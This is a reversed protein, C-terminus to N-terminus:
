RQDQGGGKETGSGCWASRREAEGFRPHCGMDAGTGANAIRCLDNRFPYCNSFSGETPGDVILFSNGVVPVFEDILSVSLTGDLSASESTATGVQLVDFSSEGALEMRLEGTELQDYEGTITIGGISDGVQLVGGNRVRGEITGSGSLEGSTQNVLQANGELLIRTGGLHISGANTFEAGSHVTLAPSGDGPESLTMTGQNRLNASEGLDISGGTWIANGSASSGTPTSAMGGAPVAGSIVVTLQGRVEVPGTVSASASSDIQVTATTAQQLFVVADSVGSPPGNLTMELNHGSGQYHLSDGSELAYSGRNESPKMLNVLGNIEINGDTELEVDLSASSVTMRDSNMIRGTGSVDGQIFLRGFTAGQVNSAESPRKSGNVLQGNITSDERLTLSGGEIRLTSGAGLDLSRIEQPQSITIIGIGGPIVADHDTGPVAAPDWNDPNSFDGDNGGGTWTVPGSTPLCAVTLPLEIQQVLLDNGPPAARSSATNNIVTGDMVGQNVRVSFSITQSQPFAVGTGLSGTWVVRNNASDFFANESVSDPIYKTGAPIPDEISSPLNTAGQGSQNNLTIEYSIASGPCLPDPFMASKEISIQFFTGFRFSDSNSVRKLDEGQLGGSLLGIVLISQALVRM